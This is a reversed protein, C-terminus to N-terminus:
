RIGAGFGQNYLVNAFANYGTKSPPVVAGILSDEAYSQWLIGVNGSVVPAAQGEGFQAHTDQSWLAGLACLVLAFFVNRNM